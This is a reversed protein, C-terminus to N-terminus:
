IPEEMVLLSFSPQKIFDGAAGGLLHVHYGANAPIRVKNAATLNMEYVKQVNGTSATINIEYPDGLSDGGSPDTGELTRVVQLILANVLVADTYGIIARLVKHVFPVIIRCSEYGSAADEPQNEVPDSANFWIGRITERSPPIIPM